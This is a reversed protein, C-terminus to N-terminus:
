RLALAFVATALIIALGVLLLRANSSQARGRAAALDFRETVLRKEPIGLDRLSGLVSDMMAAPGCVFYRAGADDAGLCAKLVDTTLEGVSGQWGPEPESLVFHTELDLVGKMREIEDRYLIQTQRRNGYILSVHHPYRQAALHRLMSIIPSLGVGGAIFVIAELEGGALTFSGHPGALYATIAAPIDGIRDTFDGVEKITFAIRPRQAPASSISFPHESLTFPTRGLKLWVFQGPVFDIAAGRRPEITLEWMRDAVKRKSVVRYPTRLQLLPTILYIHAISLVALGLLAAWYMRLWPHAGHLGVRLLHHFGLASIAAAGLGHSLRWIEHSVPLRHRWIALPVLLIVLGWAIVGTRLADSALLSQLLDLAYAPSSGLLWGAYLCPHVLLLVLLIQGMTQHFRMVFDIGVTETVTRFRGSLLFQMLLMAYGALATASSLALWLGFGSPGGFGTLVLPLLCIAAYISALTPWLLDALRRIGMIPILDRM